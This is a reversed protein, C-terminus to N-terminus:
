SSTLKLNKQDRNFFQFFLIFLIFWYYYMHSVSISFMMFSISFSFLFLFANQGWINRRLNFLYQKLLFLLTTLYFISHAWFTYGGEKIGIDLWANHSVFHYKEKLFKEITYGKFLGTEQISEFSLGWVFYRENEILDAGKASEFFRNYLQTQSFKDILNGYNLSLGLYLFVFFFLFKFLNLKNSNFIFKLLQLISIILVASFATRSVTQLILYISILTLGAFFFKSISTASAHNYLFLSAIYSAILDPALYNPDGHFGSFQGNIFTDLGFILGLLHPLAFFSIVYLTKFPFGFRSLYFYVFLFFVLMKILYFSNMLFNTVVPSNLRSIITGLMIVTIWFINKVDKKEFQIKYSNLFIALGTFTFIELLFYEKSIYETGICTITLFWLNHIIKDNKSITSFQNLM